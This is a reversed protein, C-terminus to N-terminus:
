DWNITGGPEASAHTSVTAAVRLVGGTRQVQGIVDEVVDPDATALVFRFSTPLLDPNDDVREIMQDDDAFLVRYENETEQHDLYDLRDVRPDDRLDTEIAALEGDSLDQDVFVVMSTSGDRHVEPEEAPDLGWTAAAGGVFGVVAGAVGAAIVKGGM